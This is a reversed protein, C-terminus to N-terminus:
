WLVYTKNIFYENEEENYEIEWDKKIVFNNNGDGWIGIETDTEDISDIIFDIVLTGVCIGIRKAMRIRELLQEM